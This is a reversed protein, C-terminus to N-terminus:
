SNVTYENIASTIKMKVKWQAFVCSVCCMFSILSICWMIVFCIFSTLYLTEHCEFNWPKYLTFTYISLILFGILLIFDACLFFIKMNKNCKSDEKNVGLCSCCDHFLRIISKLLLLTSFVVVGIPLEPATPCDNIHISGVIMLIISIVLNIPLFCILCFVKEAKEKLM